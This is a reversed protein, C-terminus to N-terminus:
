YTRSHYDVEGINAAYARLLTIDEWGNLGNKQITVEILKMNTPTSSGSASFVYPTSTDTIYSINVINRYQNKYGTKSANDFAFSYTGGQEDM